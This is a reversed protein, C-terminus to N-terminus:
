DLFYFGETNKLIHEPPRNSGYARMRFRNFKYALNPDTQWRILEDNLLKMLGSFGYHSVFVLISSLAVNSVYATAVSVPDVYREVWNANQIILPIQDWDFLQKWEDCIPVERGWGARVAFNDYIYRFIRLSDAALLLEHCFQERRVQLEIRIWSEPMYHLQNYFKFNEANYANHKEQEMRKDYVRLCRNSSGKGFYVSKQDHTRVSVGIPRSCGVSVTCGSFNMKGYVNFINICDDIFNPCHDFLDYAFDCRTFHYTAESPLDLKNFLLDEVNIGFSRLNDCATGMSDVRVFPLRTDFFTSGDTDSSFIFRSVDDWKIQFGLKHVSFAFIAGYAVMTQFHDHMIQEFDPLLTSDIKLSKFIENLTANEYVISFTDISFIISGNKQLFKDM